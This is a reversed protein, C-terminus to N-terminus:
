SDTERNSKITEYVDWIFDGCAKASKRAYESRGREKAVQDCHHAASSLAALYAVTTDGAQKHHEVERECFEIMKQRVTLDATDRM